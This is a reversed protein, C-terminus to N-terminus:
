FTDHGERASNVLLATITNIAEMMSANNTQAISEAKSNIM